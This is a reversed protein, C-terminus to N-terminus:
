VVENLGEDVLPIQLQMLLLGYRGQHFAIWLEHDLLHLLRIEHVLFRRTEERRQAINVASLTRHRWIHSTGLMTRLGGVRPVSAQDQFLVALVM